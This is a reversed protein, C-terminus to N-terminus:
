QGNLMALVSDKLQKYGLIALAMRYHQPGGMAKTLIDAEMDESSQKVVDVVNMELVQEQVFKM